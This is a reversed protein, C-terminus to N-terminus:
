QEMTCFIADGTRNDVVSAYVYVARGAMLYLESYAGEPPCPIGLANFINNVQVNQYGPVAYTGYGLTAGDASHVEIGVTAEDGYYETFGINTRYDFGCRLQLLWGKEDANLLRSGAQAPIFQGYTGGNEETTYTRSEAMASIIRLSGGGDGSQPFLTGVVDKIEVLNPQDLSFSYKFTNNETYYELLAGPAGYLWLDSRWLTGYAGPTRAVAAVMNERCSRSKRAPIFIADGTRNDVVSVYALLAGGSKVEIEARGVALNSVGLDDLGIQQWGSPLLIISSTFLPSDSVNYIRLEVETQKGTIEALGINTRYDTNQKIGIVRTWDGLTIREALSQAPVFQGYTGGDERETYTRTTMRVKGTPEIRLQGASDGEVACTTGVIDTFNWAQGTQLCRTECLIDGGESPFYRLDYSVEKNDVNLIMGDTRWSTGYAGKTHAVAPVFLTQGKASPPPNTLSAIAGDQHGANYPAFAGLSPFDASLSIGAVIVNGELDQTLAFAGDLDSGGLYSGWVAQGNLGSLRAVYMDGNPNVSQQYGNEVFRDASFTFGAIIVDGSAKDLSLTEVGGGFYTGWLLDHGDASLIAVYMDDYRSLVPKFGNPAPMDCSDTLGAVYIEGNEDVSLGRAADHGEGGLYTGWLIRDEPISIKAFYMDATDGGQTQYGGSVPIDNSYTTGGVIVYDTGDVAIYEAFDERTGGVNFDWLLDTGERSLKAVYMDPYSDFSKREMLESSGVPPLCPPGLSPMGALAIDGAPDIACDTAGMGEGLFTGWLLQDGSDSLCAVYINEAAGAGSSNNYTPDYSGPTTPINNSCTKGAVIISSNGDVKLCRAFDGDDGGLFTGWLLAKGSSHLKAIFMDQDFNIETDYGDKVPFDWSWTNGAAIVNGQADVALAEITDDSSGGLYTGWILTQTEWQGGTKEVSSLNMERPVASNATKAPTIAEPLAFGIAALKEGVQQKFVDLLGPSLGEIRWFAPSKPELVLDTGPFINKIRLRGYTPVDTVWGKPDNGYFFNLKTILPDEPVVERWCAGPLTLLIGSQRVMNGRGKSFPTPPIQTAPTFEGEVESYIEGLGEKSLLPVVGGKAFPSTLLPDTAFPTAPGSSSGTNHPVAAWPQPISSSTAPPPAQEVDHIVNILLGQETVYVRGWPADMYYSINEGNKVQGMNPVVLGGFSGAAHAIVSLSVVFLFLISITKIAM